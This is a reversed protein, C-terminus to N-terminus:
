YSHGLDRGNVTVNKHLYISIRKNSFQNTENSLHYFKFTFSVGIDFVYRTLVLGKIGGGDLCLVRARENKRGSRKPRKLKNDLVDDFLSRSRKQLAPKEIGSFDM